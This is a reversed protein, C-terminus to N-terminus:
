CEEGPANGRAIMNSGKLSKKTKGEEPYFILAALFTMKCFSNQLATQLAAIFSRLCYTLKFKVNGQDEAIFLVSGKSDLYKYIPKSTYKTAIPTNITRAAAEQQHLITQFLSKSM